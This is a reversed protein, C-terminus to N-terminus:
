AQLAYIYPNMGIKASHELLGTNHMAMLLKRPTMREQLDIYLFSTTDSGASEECSVLGPYHTDRDCDLMGLFVEETEDAADAKNHQDIVVIHKSLLQIGLKWQSADNLNSEPDATFLVLKDSPHNLIQAWEPAPYDFTVACYVGEIDTKMAGILVLVSRKLAELISTQHENHSIFINGTHPTYHLM